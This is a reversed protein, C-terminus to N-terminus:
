MHGQNAVFTGSIASCIDGRM